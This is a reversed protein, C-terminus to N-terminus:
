LVISPNHEIDSKGLKKVLPISYESIPFFFIKDTESDIVKELDSILSDIKESTIEIEFCSLQVRKGHENLLKIVKDRKRDDSIDYTVLYKM